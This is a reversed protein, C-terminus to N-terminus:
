KLVIYGDKVRELIRYVNPVSTNVTRSIETAGMDKDNLKVIARVQQMTIKYLSGRHSGGISKGEAKAAQQGAIIRETRVENEYMAVSALVTAILRGTVTTLDVNDRISILNTNHKQLTEFLKVLGSTTRGLRDLRWVILNSVRNAVIAKEIQNWKPRDMTLGSHKETLHRVTGLEDAHSEVYRKLDSSQSKITQAKSSVRVYVVSFRNNNSHKM